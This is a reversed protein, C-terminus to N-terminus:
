GFNGERREKVKGRLKAVNKLGVSRVKSSREYRVRRHREGLGLGFRTILSSLNTINKRRMEASNSERELTSPIGFYRSVTLNRQWSNIQPCESM